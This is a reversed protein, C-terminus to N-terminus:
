SVIEEGNNLRIKVRCPAAEPYQATLAKDESVKIKSMLQRLAPDTLRKELFSLSSIEGDILAIALIYPLSHDATERTQPAWRSPDTGNMEVALHYTEIQIESIDAVQLRSRARAGGM